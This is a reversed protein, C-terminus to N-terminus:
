PEAAAQFAAKADEAAKQAAANAQEFPTMPVLPVGAAAALAEAEAQASAQEESQRTAEAEAAAQQSSVQQVAAQQSDDATQVGGEAEAAEARAIRVDAAAAAEM